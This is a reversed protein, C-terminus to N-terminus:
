DSAPGFVLLWVKSIDVGLVRMIQPDKAGARVILGFKTKELGLWLLVLIVAVVAVVFLRYIPFFGIGLDAVGALEPPTQFPIGDSGFVIRVAEVLVYGLGFTLLLPDDISRKYLPRILFREILM